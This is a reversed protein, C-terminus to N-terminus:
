EKIEAYVIPIIKDYKWSEPEKFVIIIEKRHFGNDEYEDIYCLWALKM